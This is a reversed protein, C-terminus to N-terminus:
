RGTFKPARKELFAGTGERADETACCLAFRTTEYDLGREIPCDLGAEVASLIARVAHPASAALREAIEGVHADLADGAVVDQVLGYALATRADIPEGTLMMWLARGRGILRPLRQTGGFGPLLGLKIEPLGLRAHDAAFRLHCAMALELGGGLAFGNIAAIVPKGATEIRRMLQQGSRAFAHAEIAQRDRIEAIDAGAVFAKEGRGTLVLVAISEDALLRAIVDDLEALTAVDLANLRDPRDITVTTVRERREVALNEPDTQPDTNQGPM